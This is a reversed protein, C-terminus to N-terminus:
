KRSLKGKIYLEYLADKIDQETDVNTDETTEFLKDIHAKPVFLKNDKLQVSWTFNNRPNALQIYDPLVTKMLLGGTRYQRTRKNIYKVWTRFPTLDQLLSIDQTRLPIYGDLEKKIDQSTMNEQKTGDKPKRYTSDALSQWNNPPPTQATSDPNTETETETGQKTIIFM